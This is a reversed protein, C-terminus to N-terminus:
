QKTLSPLIKNALVGGIMWSSNELHREKKEPYTVNQHDWKESLLPIETIHGWAHVTRIDATFYIKM